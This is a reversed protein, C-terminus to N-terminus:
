ELQARLRNTHTTIDHRQLREITSLIERGRTKDGVQICAQVLNIGPMPGHVVPDYVPAILDLAERPHGSKGLDGSIMMLAAGTIGAAPLVRAYIAMAGALNGDELAKRALWLQPRWSGPVEAAREMARLFGAEGDRERHLAGWWDLANDQN